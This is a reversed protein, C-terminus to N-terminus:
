INPCKRVNRLCPYCLYPNIFATISPINCYTWNDKHAFPVLLSIQKCYHSTSEVKRSYFTFCLPRIQPKIKALDENKNCKHHLHVLSKKFKTSSLSGLIYITFDNSKTTASNKHFEHIDRMWLKVDESFYYFLTIFYMLFYLTLIYQLYIYNNM